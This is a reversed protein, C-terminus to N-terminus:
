NHEHHGNTGNTAQAGNLRITVQPSRLAQGVERVATQLIQDIDTQSTLRAAIDNVLRERETARQSEHFLRANELSIALRDTLEQALLVKNQDFSEQPLEWEVAGLVQDRLRIPVAIPITKRETPTGIVTRGQQLARERLDGAPVVPRMGAESELTESRESINYERWAQLTSARRNREIEELRLLSEQYLRANEIAVSIQDAMTQLVNTQDQAFTDAQKSQVDLAGIVRDGVRLPIALEALTDPLFENRKHVRSAATDRAVVVQGQDTTQGIVSVSGVALRHGRELLKRGPEGTSARLVAYQGEKDILFIQAHYINPFREVILNVVQDMLRQLDRQTAAYRSIEQTTQVDRVSAAMRAELDAVMTQVWERTDAISGALTGIEDGRGADTIPTNFNGRGMAQIVTVLRGLPPTILQNGLIVLVGVLFILGIILAFSRTVLGNTIEDAVLNTPVESIYALPTGSIPAYYRAYEIEESTYTEIGDRGDLARQVGVTRFIPERDGQFLGEPTIVLGTATVLYTTGEERSLNNYFIPQNELTAVLYALVPQRTNNEGEYQILHVLQVIPEDGDRDSFVVMVQQQQRLSAQIGAAYAPSNILSEGGVLSQSRGPLAQLVMIGNADLLEIKEFYGSGVNIVTDQLQRVFYLLGDQSGTDAPVIQRMTPEQLGGVFGNLSTQAQELGIEILQRQRANDEEIHEISNEATVDAVINMTMGVVILAPILVAVVIGVLLKVWIPWSLVSLRRSRENM